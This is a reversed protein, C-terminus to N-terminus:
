ALSSIPVWKATRDRGHDKTFASFQARGDGQLERDDAHRGGTDPQEGGRESGTWEHVGADARVNGARLTASARQEGLNDPRSCGSRVSRVGLSRERERVADVKAGVAGNDGM